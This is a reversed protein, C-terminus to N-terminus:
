TPNSYNAFRESRLDNSTGLQDTVLWRIDVASGSIWANLVRDRLEQIHIALIEHGQALGPAYGNSPAGLPQDLASRMEDIPEWSIFVTNDIAGGSATPKQWQFAPLGYHARLANIATRLETLHSGKIDTKPQGPPNLPNDHLEPANGWGSTVTATILLQGNRFGYEKQPNTPVGNEAYEAVMEGGFGYVMWTEVGNVKRKIRKGMADYAYFQEATPSGGSAVVIKNNANYKRDGAGTYSDKKLNGVEDYQMRRSAPPLIEDGPAYLRNTSDLDFKEFPTSNVAGWTRLHPDGPEPNTDITRNGYQDYSFWQRWQEASNFTENVSQLRNL